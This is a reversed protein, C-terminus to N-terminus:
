EWPEPGRAVDPLCDFGQAVLESLHGGHDLLYFRPQQRRRRPLQATAVIAILPQPAKFDPDEAIQIVAQQDRASPLAAGRPHSHWDGLFTVRGGTAEWLADFAARHGNGSITVKFPTGRSAPPTAHTVVLSEGDGYGLLWGGIEWPRGRLGNLRALVHLRVWLETM